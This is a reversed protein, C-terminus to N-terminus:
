LTALTDSMCHKKRRKIDLVRWIVFVLCFRIMFINETDTYDEVCYCTKTKLKRRLLFPIGVLDNSDYCNCTRSSDCLSSSVMHM